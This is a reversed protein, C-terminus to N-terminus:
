ERRFWFSSANAALAKEPYGCIRALESPHNNTLWNTAALVEYETNFALFAELIYQENWLKRDQRLWKAPYDMPTFIDHIHVIVGSAISPIIEHIEKLVDGFPRIVHSSDIFVIDNAGLNKFYDMEVHEVRKRVIEAGITELWPNAYPEICVQRCQYSPQEQKNKAIAVRAILTSDGSGIEVIRRPKFHRVFSYLMDADGHGYQTGEFGFESEKSRRLPFKAIEEAWHFQRLLDIQGAENLNLGPLSREHDIVEPLHDASYSPEYFHTGRFQVTAQDTAALFRPLESRNYALFRLLPAGLRVLSAAAIDYYKTPRV